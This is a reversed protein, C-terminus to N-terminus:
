VLVIRSVLEDGLLSNLKRLIPELQFRLQARITSSTITCTLVGDRFYKRSTLAEAREPSIAGSTMEKMILDWADFIRARQLGDELHNEEVFGVIAEAISKTNERKM